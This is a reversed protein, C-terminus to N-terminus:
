SLNHRIFVWYQLGQRTSMYSVYKKLTYSLNIRLLFKHYHIPKLLLKNSPLRLKRQAVTLLSRIICLEECWCHMCRVCHLSSCTNHSNNNHMMRIFASLKSFSSTLHCKRWVTLSGHFIYIFVISIRVDDFYDNYHPM